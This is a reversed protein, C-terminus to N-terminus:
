KIVGSALSLIRLYRTYRFSKEIPGFVRTGILKNQNNLLVVSNEFFSVSEQSYSPRFVKTKVILAKLVDGKKIKSVERRKARLSKISVVVVDGTKGYRKRYGGSVHICCAKKAGSNDVVKFYTGKQIM